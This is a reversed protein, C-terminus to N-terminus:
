FYLRVFNIPFNQNDVIFLQASLQPRDFSISDSLEMILKRQILNQKGEFFYGFVIASIM